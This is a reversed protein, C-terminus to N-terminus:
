EERVYKELVRNTADLVALAAGRATEEDPCAYAGMLRYAEARSEGELSVIVVWADFARVAKAGRLKLRFAGDTAKEAARLVAEAGARLGGELTHTGESQGTYLSGVWELTAEARCFGDQFAELVFDEFRLRQRREEPHPM